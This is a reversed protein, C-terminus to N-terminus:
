SAGGFRSSVCVVDAQPEPAVPHQADLATLATTLWARLDDPSDFHLTVGDAEIPGISITIAPQHTTVDRVIPAFPAAVFTSITTNSIGM